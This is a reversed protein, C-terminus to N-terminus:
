GISVVSLGDGRGVLMEAAERTNILGLEMYVQVTLRADRHRMM